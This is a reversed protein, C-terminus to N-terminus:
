DRSFGIEVTDPAAPDDEDLREWRASDRDWRYPASTVTQIGYDYAAAVAWHAVLWQYDYDGEAAPVAVSVAAEAGAGSVVVVGDLVPEPVFEEADEDQGNGEDEEPPETFPINLAHPMVAVLEDAVGAPDPGPVELQSLHCTMGVQQQGALPWAFARAQTAHRPYFQANHPRDLVEAAEDLHMEPEWTPDPEEGDEEPEEEAAAELGEEWSDQLVDFFGSVTVEVPVVDGQATWDPAGRAFLVRSGPDQDGERMTLETEQLSIAVAHIAAEPPLGRDAATAALLAANHTQQHTLEHDADGVAVECREDLLFENEDIYRWTGYSAGAVLATTVGLATVTRRQRRRRAMPRTVVQQRRPRRFPSM